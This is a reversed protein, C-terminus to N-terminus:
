RILAFSGSASETATRARYLYTGSPLPRGNDSRGDFPVLQWGTGGARLHRESVRTGTVTFVELDVSGAVPAYLRVQGGPVFPNQFVARLTNKAVTEDISSTVEPPPPPDHSDTWNAVMLDYDAMDCREEGTFDGAIPGYHPGFQDSPDFNAELYVFDDEDVKGDQNVDGRAFEEEFATVFLPDGAPLPDGIAPISGVAPYVSFVDGPGVPDPFDEPLPLEPFEAHRSDYVMEGMGLTETNMFVRGVFGDNIYADYDTDYPSGLYNEDFGSAGTYDFSIKFKFEDLRHVGGYYVHLFRSQIRFDGGGISEGAVWSGDNPGRFKARIRFDPNEEQALASGVTAIGLAACIMAVGKWGM